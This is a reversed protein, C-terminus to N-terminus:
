FPTPLTYVMNIGASDEDVSMTGTQPKKENDEEVSSADLINIEWEEPPRRDHKVAADLDRKALARGERKNLAEPEHRIAAELARLRADLEQRADEDKPKAATAQTPLPSIRERAQSASAGAENDNQM